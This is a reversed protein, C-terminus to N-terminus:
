PNVEVPIDEVKFGSHDDHRLDITLNTNGAKKGEIEFEWTEGGHQEAVAITTDSTTLELFHHMEDPTFYNMDHDFFQVSIHGTEEGAKVAIKSGAEFGGHDDYTVITDRSIEQILILGEPAGHILGDGHEVHIPIEKSEFDKHDNHNIIIKINTTGEEKGRIHFRYEALEGGHSELDAHDTNEIEWSLSWVDSPPIGVEGDETIFKVSLLPTLDGEEVEIEGTVVGGVYKVITDGSSIVFLGIAEFHEDVPEVPNDDSCAFIFLSIILTLSVYIIHNNMKSEGLININQYLQKFLSLVM